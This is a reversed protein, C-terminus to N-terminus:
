TIVSGFCLNKKSGEEWAQWHYRCFDCFASSCPSKPHQPAFLGVLPPSSLFDGRQLINEFLSAVLAHSPSSLPFVSCCMFSGIQEPLLCDLSPSTHLFLPPHSLPPLVPYFALPYVYHHLSLHLLCDLILPSHALVSFPVPVPFPFNFNCFSHSLLAAEHSGPFSLMRSLFSPRVVGCIYNVLSTREGPGSLQPRFSTIAWYIMRILCVKEKRSCQLSIPLNLPKSIAGQKGESIRAM